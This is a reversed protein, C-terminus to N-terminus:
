RWVLPYNVWTALLPISLILAQMAVTLGFLVWSESRGVHKFHFEGGGVVLAIWMVSLPILSWSALIASASSINMHLMWTLLDLLTTIVQLGVVATGLWLVFAITYVLLLRPSWRQLRHSSLITAAFCACALMPFTVNPPTDAVASTRDLGFVLGVVTIALGAVAIVAAAAPFLQVTPVRLTEWRNRRTLRPAIDSFRMAASPAVAKIDATLDYRIRRQLSEAEELRARCIICANLHGDMTERDADTLTRHVYGVLQEDSFHANM